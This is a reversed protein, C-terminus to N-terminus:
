RIEDSEVILSIIKDTAVPDSDADKIPSQDPRFPASRM